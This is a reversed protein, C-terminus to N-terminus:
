SLATEIVEGKHDSQEPRKYDLVKLRVFTGSNFPKRERSRSFDLAFTQIHTNDHMDKEYPQQIYKHVCLNKKINTVHQLM